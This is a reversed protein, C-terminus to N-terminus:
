RRSDCWAGGAAHAAEFASADACAYAQEACLACMDGGGTSVLEPALEGCEGCLVAVGPCRPEFCRWEGHVLAVDDHGLPCGSADARVEDGAKARRLESLPLWGPARDARQPRPRELLRLVWPHEALATRSGPLEHCACPYCDCTGCQGLLEATDFRNM